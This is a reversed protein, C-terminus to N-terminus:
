CARSFGLYEPFGSTGACEELQASGSEAKYGMHTRGDKMRTIRAEPDHPYLAWDQNSAKNARKRDLRAVEKRIPKEIGKAWALGDLYDRYGQGTDRRM